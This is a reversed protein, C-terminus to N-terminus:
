EDGCHNDKITNESLKVGPAAQVCRSKMKWGTITNREIVNGKSPAPREAHSGLYIGTDLVDPEGLASCGFKAANENCHATNLRLLQNGTIRHGEGIVFIGGFKMGEMRNNVIRINRSEMEISANNMVIGFHGFAYEEPKSKNICINGEILGDHFGDLDICKGNVEDFQNRSYTTKDVNGATDIAVPIGGNEVDVTEVPYGIRTGHNGTVLIETGHGVQIADRGIQDFHNREIWGRVNRPSKYRSHTWVANGLVNKFASDAVRFNECGEEFLIGGSTNNRGLANKGGSNSVASHRVMVNKSRSVLVAFGAVESLSVNDLTVAESNEILIGNDSFSQAFEAGSPPIPRRKELAQRNGGILLNRVVVRKCAKCSLIARGQFQPGARLVAGNGEITLDHAGQPIKMESSIATIKAPFHVVGTKPIALALFLLVM